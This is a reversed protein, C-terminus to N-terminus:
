YLAFHLLYVLFTSGIVTNSSYSPLSLFLSTHKPVSELDQVISFLQFELVVTAPGTWGDLTPVARRLRALKAGNRGEVVGPPERPAVHAHRLEYVVVAAGTVGDDFDLQPM